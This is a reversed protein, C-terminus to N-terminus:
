SSRNDNDFIYDPSKFLKNKKQEDCCNLGNDNISWGNIKDCNHCLAGNENKPIRYGITSVGVPMECKGTPLCRGFENDYNKNAKYYPCEDNIICPRDWVGYENTEKHFSTCHTENEYEKYIKGAINESFCKYQRDLAKRDQSRKWEELLINAEKSYKGNLKKWEKRTDDVDKTYFDNTVINNSVNMNDDSLNDKKLTQYEDNSDILNYGDSEQLSNGNNTIVKELPLSILNANLLKYTYNSNNNEKDNTSNNKKNKKVFYTMRIVFQYMKYDHGIQLEFKLITKKNEGLKILDSSSIRNFYNILKFPENKHFQSVQKYNDSIFKENILIMSNAILFLTLNDYSNQITQKTYSKSVIEVLLKIMDAKSLEIYNSLLGERPEIQKMTGIDYKDIINNM